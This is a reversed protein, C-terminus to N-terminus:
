LPSAIVRTLLLWLCIFLQRCRSEVQRKVKEPKMKELAEDHFCPAVGVGVGGDWGGFFGWFAGVQFFVFIHDLDFHNFVSPVNIFKLSIIFDIVTVVGMASTAAKM